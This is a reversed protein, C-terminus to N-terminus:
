YMNLGFKTLLSCILLIENRSQDSICVFSWPFIIMLNLKHGLILNDRQPLSVYLVNDLKHVM